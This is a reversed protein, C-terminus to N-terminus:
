LKPIVAGAIVPEVGRATIGPVLHLAIQVRFNLGFIPLLHPRWSVSRPAAVLLLCPMDDIKMHTEPPKWLRVRNRTKVAPMDPRSFPVLVIVIEPLIRFVM